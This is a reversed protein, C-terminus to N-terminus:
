PKNSLQKSSSDLFFTTPVMVLLLQHATYTATTSKSLLALDPLLLATFSTSKPTYLRLLASEPSHFPPHSTALASVIRRLKCVEIPWVVKVWMETLAHVLHFSIENDDTFPGRKREKAAETHM